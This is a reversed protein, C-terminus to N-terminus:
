VFTLRGAGDSEAPLRVLAFYKDKPNFGPASPRLTLFTRIMLLAGVLLLVGLALESAVLIRRTITSGRTHGRDGAALGGRLSAASAHMASALGSGLGGLIAL